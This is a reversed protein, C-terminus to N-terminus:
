VFYFMQIKFFLINLIVKLNGWPYKAEHLWLLSDFNLFLIHIQVRLETPVSSAPVTLILPECLGLNVDQNQM